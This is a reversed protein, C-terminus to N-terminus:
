QRRSSGSGRICIDAPTGGYEEPSGLGLLGADGAKKYLEIPFTGEEEWKEVHPLIERAVFKRVTERIMQHSETFYEEYM